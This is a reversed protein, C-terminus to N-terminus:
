LSKFVQYAYFAIQISTYIKNIHSKYSSMINPLIAALKRREKWGVGGGGLKVWAQSTGWRTMQDANLVHMSLISIQFKLTEDIEMLLDSLVQIPRHLNANLLHLLYDYGHATYLPPPMAYHTNPSKPLRFARIVHQRSKHPQQFAPLMNVPVSTLSCPLM